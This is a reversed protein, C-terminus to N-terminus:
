ERLWAELVLQLGMGQAAALAGALKGDCRSHGPVRPQAQCPFALGERVWSIKQEVGTVARAAARMGQQIGATLKNYVTVNQKAM